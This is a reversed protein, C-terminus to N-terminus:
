TARSRSRRGADAAAGDLVRAVLLAIDDDSGDPVLARSSRTRSRRRDDGEVADLTAGLQDIGVDIVRDRREVLGDTYLALLAGPASRGRPRTSRRGLRAGSRRAPASTSGGRRRARRRRAAAAPPRRQRLDALRRAPRLGRLPLHRDARRRARRRRRRALELVDAPSLDLQAYARVAARLQGMVAAARVGRGMVDGLVLATRGAGLEIVDYWDGGVQTGAVGARYYTAVELQEADFSRQPCCAASCSTPSGASAPPPRASPTAGAGAGARGRAARHRGPRQRAPPGARRGDDREVEGLAHHMARAARRAHRAADRGRVVGSTAAASSRRRARARPRRPARAPHALELGGARLEDADHRDPAPVGRVGDDRGDRPRDGLQRRAGAAAGPRAPRRQPAARRAHPAGPRARPERARARAARAGRVAQGPLRRRRGRLGEITGEEGARASLM